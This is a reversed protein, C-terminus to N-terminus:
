RARERRAELLLALTPCSAAARRALSVLEPAVPGDDVIPYGWDDLRIHEPLLETCLGHGDCAIARRGRTPRWAGRGSLSVTARGSPVRIRGAAAIGPARSAQRAPQTLLLKRNTMAFPASM